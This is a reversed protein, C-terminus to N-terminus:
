TLSSPVYLDISTICVDEEVNLPKDAEYCIGGESFDYPRAAKFQQTNLVAYKIPGRYAARPHSRPIIHSM